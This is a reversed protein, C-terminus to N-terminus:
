TKFEVRPQSSNILRIDHIHEWEDVGTIALGSEIYSVGFLTSDTASCLRYIPNLHRDQNNLIKERGVLRVIGPKIQGLYNNSDFQYTNIDQPSIKTDDNKPASNDPTYHVSTKNKFTNEMMLAFGAYTVVGGGSSAHYYAGAIQRWIRVLEGYAQKVDLPTIHSHPLRANPFKAHQLNCRVDKYQTKIIHAVPDEKGTPTFHALSIKANVFSLARELWKGEQEGKNKKCISNLLSEFALFLNRYAEFLDSSCQSIRFYRFSENWIPDPPDPLKVENGQGDIQTIKLDMGMPFDFLSYVALILKEDEGYICINSNAPNALCASLAGKASLVDLAEQIASFGESQVKEHPMMRITRAIVDNSDNTLVVQWDGKQTHYIYSSQPKVALSYSVGCCYKGGLEERGAIFLNGLRAM